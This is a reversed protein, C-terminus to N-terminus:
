RTVATRFLLLHLISAFCTARRRPVTSRAADTRAANVESRTAASVQGLFGFAKGCISDLKKRIPRLSGDRNKTSPRLCRMVASDSNGKVTFSFWDRSLSSKRWWERRERAGRNRLEAGNDPGVIEFRIFISLALPVGSSSERCGACRFFFPVQRARSLLSEAHVRPGAFLNTTNEVLRCNPNDPINCPDGLVTRLDTAVPTYNIKILSPRRAGISPTRLWPDLAVRTEPGYFSFRNRQLRSFQIGTVRPTVNGAESVSFVNEQGTVAAKRPFRRSSGSNRERAGSDEM